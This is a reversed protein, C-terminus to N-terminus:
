RSTFRAKAAEIRVYDRATSPVPRSRVGHPLCLPDTIFGAAFTGDHFEMIAKCGTPMHIAAISDVQLNLRMDHPKAWAPTSMGLALVAIISRIRWLGTM